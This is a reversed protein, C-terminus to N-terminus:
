NSIKHSRRLSLYHKSLNNCTVSMKVVQATTVKLTLHFDKDSSPIQHLKKVQSQLHSGRLYVFCWDGAIIKRFVLLRELSKSEGPRIVCSLCESVGPKLSNVM